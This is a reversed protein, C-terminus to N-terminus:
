SQQRVDVHLIMDNLVIVHEIGLFQINNDELDTANFDFEIRIIRPKVEEAKIIRWHLSEYSQHHAKQMSMIDKVGVFFEGYRNCFTANDAFLIEIKSFDSKNSLEFYEIALQLEKSV